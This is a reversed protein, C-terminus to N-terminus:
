RVKSFYERCIAYFMREQRLHKSSYAVLIKSEVGIESESAHWELNTDDGLSPNDFFYQHIDEVLTSLDALAEKDIDPSNAGQSAKGFKYRIDIDYGATYRMESRTFRIAEDIKRPVIVRVDLREAVLAADELRHEYDWEATFDGYAFTNATLAEAIATATEVLISTM